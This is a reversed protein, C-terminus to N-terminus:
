NPARVKEQRAFLSTSFGRAAQKTTVSAGARRALVRINSLMTTDNPRNSYIPLDFLLRLFCAARPVHSQM